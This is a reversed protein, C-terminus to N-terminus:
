PALGRYKAIAEDISSRPWDADQSWEVAKWVTALRELYAAWRVEAARMDLLLKHTEKAADEGGPHRALFEAMEELRMRGHDFVEASNKHCLYDFSGGSM